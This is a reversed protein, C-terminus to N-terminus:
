KLFGEPQLGRQSGVSHQRQDAEACPIEKVFLFGEDDQNFKVGGMREIVRHMLTHDFESHCVWGRAKVQGDLIHSELQKVSRILTKSLSGRENTIWYLAAWGNMLTISLVGDNFIEGGELM